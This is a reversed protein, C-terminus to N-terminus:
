VPRFVMMSVIVIVAVLEIASVRLYSRFLRGYEKSDATGAESQANLKKEYAGGVGAALILAVVMLILSIVVWLDGFGIGANIVVMTIGTAVVLLPMPIFIWKLAWGYQLLGAAVQGEKRLVSQAHGHVTIGAGVWTAGTLIHIFLIITYWGNMDPLALSELTVACRHQGSKRHTPFWVALRNSVWDDLSGIQALSSWFWPPSCRAAGITLRM